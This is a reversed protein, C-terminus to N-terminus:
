RKLIKILLVPWLALAGPLILAKLGFSANSMGADIKKAGKIVFYLAFLLGLLLYIYFLSVLVTAM